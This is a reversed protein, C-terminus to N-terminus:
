KFQEAFVKQGIKTEKIEKYSTTPNKYAYIMSLESSPTKRKTRAGHDSLITLNINNVLNEKKLDDLFKSLFVLVCGRELNHQTIKDELSSYRNLVSRKGDYNCKDDFGYPTHPVLSHVFILDYKKSKIDIKLDYFLNSFSAKHGEPELTSDIIRVQRLVRWTLASYISGNIKWDSIIKTLFNKKFGNLYEKDEFINYSKCKSINDFNCYNLHINQYISIDNYKEFFTSKTLEYEQFYNNSKKIVKKRITLDESLNLFASVSNLTHRDISNIDSYFNFKYKKFFDKAEINFKKGSTTSSELSTLGSMEDFLIVVNTENYNNNVNKNFNVIKQYSKTQDFINFLFITVLFIIIINYIKSSDKKILFFVIITLFIILLFAPIYIIKFTPLLHFLFPSIIGVWLGINNDIGFVIILSIFIKYLLNKNIKKLYFFYNILIIPIIFIITSYIIYILNYNSRLAFVPFFCILILLNSRALTM